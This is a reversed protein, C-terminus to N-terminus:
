YSCCYSKKPKSKTNNEMFEKTIQDNRLKLSNQNPKSLNEELNDMVSDLLSEISEGVNINYLASTEIYNVNNQEAFEIARVKTIIRQSELDSKNGILIL